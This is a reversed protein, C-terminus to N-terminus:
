MPTATKLDMQWSWFTFLCLNIWLSLCLKLFVSIMPLSYSNRHNHLLFFFINRSCDRWSKLIVNRQWPLDHIKVLPTSQLWAVQVQSWVCNGHSEACLGHIWKSKLRKVQYGLSILFCIVTNLICSMFSRPPPPLLFDQMQFQVSFHQMLCVEAFRLFPM